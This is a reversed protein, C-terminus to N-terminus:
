VASSFIIETMCLHPIKVVTKMGKDARAKVQTILGDAPLQLFGSCRLEDSSDPTCAAGM